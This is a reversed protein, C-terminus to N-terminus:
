FHYRDKSPPIVYVKQLVFDEAIPATDYPYDEAPVYVDSYHIVQAGSKQAFSLNKCIPGSKLLGSMPHPFPVPIVMPEDKAIIEGEKPKRSFFQVSKSSKGCAMREIDTFKGCMATGGEIKYEPTKEVVGNELYEDWSVLTYKIYPYKLTTREVEFQEALSRLASSIDVFINEHSDASVSMVLDTTLSTGELTASVKMKVRHFTATDPIFAPLASVVIPNGCLLGGSVIKLNSAM